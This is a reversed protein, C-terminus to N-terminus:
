SYIRDCEIGTNLSQEVYCNEPEYRDFGIEQDDRCKTVYLVISPCTHQVDGENNCYDSVCTDYFQAPRLAQPPSQTLFYFFNESNELFKWFELFKIM